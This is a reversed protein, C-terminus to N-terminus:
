INGEVLNVIQDITDNLDTSLLAAGTGWDTYGLLTNKITM